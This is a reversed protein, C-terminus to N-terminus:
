GGSAPAPAGAVVIVTHDPVTDLINNTSPPQRGPHCPTHDTALRPALALEPWIKCWDVPRLEQRTVKGGTYKEIAPCHQIAVPRINEIWQHLLSPSVNIVRAFEAKKMGSEILYNKLDM